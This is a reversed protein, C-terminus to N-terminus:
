AARGQRTASVMLSSGFPMPVFGALRFEASLTRALIHNLWSPLPRLDSAGGPRATRRRTFSRWLYLAPFLATNWYRVRVIEFNGRILETLSRRTYRRETEMVADHRGRLCEFAPLNLILMGGPKLVRAFEAVARSPDVCSEDIVDTSVVIDFSADAFPMQEVPALVVPPSQKRRAAEVALPSIDLGQTDAEPFARSLARLNGGPGCGADLIRLGKTRPFVRRIESLLRERLGHHWWYHDELSEILAYQSAHM